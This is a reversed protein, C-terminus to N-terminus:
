LKTMFRRKIGHEKCFENEARCGRSSKWDGCIWCEDCFQLLYLCMSLGKEYDTKDYLFSFTHCPSIFLYNPYSEHAKIIINEVKNLNNEDGGFPHSIYVVKAFRIENLKMMKKKLQAYICISM